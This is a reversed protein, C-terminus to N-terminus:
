FKFWNCSSDPRYNSVLFYKTGLRAGISTYVAGSIVRDHSSLFFFITQTWGIIPALAWKKRSIEGLSVDISGLSLKHKAFIISEM